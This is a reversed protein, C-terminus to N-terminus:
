VRSIDWLMKYRQRKWRVWNILIILSARSKVGTGPCTLTCCLRGGKLQMFSPSIFCLDVLRVLISLISRARKSHSWQQHWWSTQKGGSIFSPPGFHVGCCRLLSYNRQWDKFGTTSLEWRGWPISWSYPMLLSAELNTIIQPLMVFRGSKEHLRIKICKVGELLLHLM